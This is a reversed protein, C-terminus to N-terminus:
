KLDYTLQLWVNRGDMPLSDQTLGDPAVAAYNRDFVNRLSLSAGLGYVPRETTFTLNALTYSGLENNGKTRRSGTYQLELGSRLWHQMFPFTLNFKGLNRPSNVMWQNNQDISDQHSYSARLRVGNDWKRELEMEIGTTHSSGVNIFHNTNADIDVDTILDHTRYHYLSSILRTQPTFDHQLILETTTVYESQLRNNPLQEGDTYYKEYTAPMRFATSYAVKLMTQPQLAYMVAIRPNVESGLDSAYDYRAGLNLRWQDTLSIEDQLYASITQRSHSSTAVPDHLDMQFDDRYEAGFVLTHDEFATSVFKQDIGWWQGLNHERWMGGVLYMGAGRDLYNGYYAHTSSKLKAGLDLDYKASVFGNNDWYQNYANFEVGYSATPIGKRRDVYAAELTLNEYQLKGFVRKSEEYDLHRAVAHNSAVNPNENAPDLFEPFFLNQGDSDLWSFSLLVDAGNQLRNGYTARGKKGGYSMGEASFQTGGFDRGKKTIINIIGFYANNGYAVSGTGPVYEVRDILEVDILGSNDIYSQNYINDNTAYGDIMLLIRGAFDGPRGFGRGGLYQFARDYTTYLGRISNLIDALSHYGYARIDDATVVTVASPEDTVQRAIKAATTVEMGLLQEFPLVTLDSTKGADARAYAASLLVGAVIAHILRQKNM